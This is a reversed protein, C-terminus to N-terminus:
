KDERENDKKGKEKRKKQMRDEERDKRTNQHNLDEHTTTKGRGAKDRRTRRNV